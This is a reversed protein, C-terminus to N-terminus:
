HLDSLKNQILGKVTFWLLGMIIATSLILVVGAIFDFLTSHAYIAYRISANASAALPFSVAWWSVRFPCVRPLQRLRFLLVSLLFLAISLLCQAFLDIHGVITVYASFGVAFPAILILLSPALTNSIPEEFMLRSLIITFLPVAFFLGIAFVFVLLTHSASQWGLVPTALPINLLGVVPVFWAPTAHVTSQRVNLWRGVMVWALLLMGICGILWSIRSAMLSYESLALPLLLLSILPTGFLPGSIPHRFEAIVADSGYLTKLGYAMYMAIFAAIGLGAIIRDVLPIGWYQHAWKWANSLGFLGMVAGFLGVPLNSLNHQKMTVVKNSHKFTM